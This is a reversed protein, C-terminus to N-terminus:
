VADHEVGEAAAAAGQDGALLRISDTKHDLQVFLVAIHNHTPKMQVIRVLRNKPVPFPNKM